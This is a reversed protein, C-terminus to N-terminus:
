PRTLNRIVAALEALEFPKEILPRTTRARLAVAEPSGVDGSMIVLRAFLDPRLVELQDHVEVGSVRPMKLDTLILTYGHPPAAVLKALGAEGNPSEEVTWGTREFYRRLALRIPAEDDILLVTRAASRTGNTPTLEGNGSASSASEPSVTGGGAVAPASPLTLIFRAGGGGGGPRRNEAVLTGSHQEVIGLSVSLGLGTGEGPPKTTFFPEFIHPLVNPPF